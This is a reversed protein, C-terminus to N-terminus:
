LKYRIGLTYTRDLDIYQYTNGRTGIYGVQNASTLNTASLSIQLNRNKLMNYAVRFNLKSRGETFVTQSVREGAGGLQRLYDSRYSYALRWNLRDKDFYLVGNASHKSSGPFGKNNDGVDNDFSSSVFNYNGKVGFYNFPSPMFRFMQNFGVEFGYLDADTFNEAQKINFKMEDWPINPDLELGIADEGPFPQGENEITLIYDNIRKYFGSFVLAGGTKLYYEFTHDMQWASYPKLDPNAKKISNQPYLENPDYDPGNVFDASLSSVKNTPVMDTLKPRSIARSLSLRYVFDRSLEWKLNLSPNVDWRSSSVETVANIAVNQDEEDPDPSKTSVGSFGIANVDTRIARVGVNGSLHRGLLMAKFDVQGYTAFTEERIYGSNPNSKLESDADILDRFNVSFLNGENVAYFDPIGQKILDRNAYIWSNSGINKEGIFNNIFNGKYADKMIQYQENTPKRNQGNGTRYDVENSSYRVGAKITMKKSLRKKLDFKYAYNDGSTEKIRYGQNIPALIEKNAKLGYLQYDMTANDGPTWSFMPAGGRVNFVIGSQDIRSYDLTMAGYTILDQRFDLSSVSYDFSM